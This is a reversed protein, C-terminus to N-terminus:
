EEDESPRLAGPWLSASDRDLFLVAHNQRRLVSAPCATSIPGTLTDRVAEAKRREPVVCIMRRAGCLAPVTLTYAYEPVAGLSRFAGEGVQQRRCAEDLKVLKMLRDDAFDAVPPDNFAVHGNEGIGLCCLDIPQGALLGGYRDCERIPLEAEGRVYHFVKPRVRAEVRDRLFRRFSAPHDDTIGLYEDMHFFTVRSWDIGEEAVLRDLFLVQSAASAVIVAAEDQKALASRLEAGAAQAAARALAEPGDCVRVELADVKRRITM